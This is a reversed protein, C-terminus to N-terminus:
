IYEDEQEEKELITKTIVAQNAVIQFRTFIEEPAIRALYRGVQELDLYFDSLQKVIAQAVRENRSARTM